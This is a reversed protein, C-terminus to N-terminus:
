QLMVKVQDFLHKGEKICLFLGFCCTVLYGFVFLPNSFLVFLVGLVFDLVM